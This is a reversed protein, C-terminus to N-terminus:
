ISSEKEKESGSGDPERLYELTMQVYAAIEYGQEETIPLGQDLVDMLSILPQLTSDAMKIQQNRENLIAVRELLDQFDVCLTLDHGHKDQYGLWKFHDIIEAKTATKIDIRSM